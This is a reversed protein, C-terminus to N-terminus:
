PVKLFDVKHFASDCKSFHKFYTIYLIKTKNLVRKPLCKLLPKSEIDEVKCKNFNLYEFDFYKFMYCTGLKPFIKGPSTLNQSALYVMLKDHYYSFSRLVGFGFTQFYKPRLILKLIHWEHHSWVITHILSM